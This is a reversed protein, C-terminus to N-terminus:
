SGIIQGSPWIGVTKTENTKNDQLVVEVQAAVVGPTASYLLGRSNFEFSQGAGTTITVRPPLTITQVSYLPDHVWSGSNFKLRDIEYYDSHLTIRYHVGRGTSNGRAMRAYDEFESLSSTLSLDGRNSNPIAIAVLIGVISLIILLEVLSFGRQTERM